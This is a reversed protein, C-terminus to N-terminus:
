GCQSFGHVLKRGFELFNNQQMIVLTVAYGIDCVPDGALVSTVYQDVYNGGLDVFEIKCNYTKEVYAIREALAAEIANKNPDPTMDYYSGIRVVRGGFDYEPEEPTEEVVSAEETSESVTTPTESVPAPKSGCATLSLVMASSLLLGVLRKTLQKKM